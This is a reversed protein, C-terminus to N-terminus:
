IEYANELIMGVAPLGAHMIIKDKEADVCKQEYECFAQTPTHTASLVSAFSGHECEDL